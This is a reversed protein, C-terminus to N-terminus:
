SGVHSDRAGGLRLGGRPGSRRRQKEKLVLTRIERLIHAQDLPGLEEGGEAYKSSVTGAEGLRIAWRPSKGM